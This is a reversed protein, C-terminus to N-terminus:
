WTRKRGKEEIEEKEEQGNAVHSPDVSSKSAFTLFAEPLIPINKRHIKIHIQMDLVGLQVGM